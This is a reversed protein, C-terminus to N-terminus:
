LLKQLAILLAGGLAASVGNACIACLVAQGNKHERLLLCYVAAELLTIYGEVAWFSLWLVGMNWIKLSMMYSLAGQTLLNVVLFLIWSGKRRYGFLYFVGGELLLTLLLRGIAGLIVNGLDPEDLELSGREWDLTLEVRYRKLLSDSLDFTQKQGRYEAALCVPQGNAAARIFGTRTAWTGSGRETKILGLDVVREGGALIYLDFESYDAGSGAKVRVFFNPEIAANASISGCLALLVAALLLLSLGRRKM